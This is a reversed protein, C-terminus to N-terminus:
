RSDEKSFPSAPNAAIFEAARRLCDEHPTRFNDDFRFFRRGLEVYIATVRGASTGLDQLIGRGAGPDM